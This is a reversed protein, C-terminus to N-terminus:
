AAGAEKHEPRVRPRGRRGTLELTAARRKALAEVQARSYLWGFPTEHRDLEGREVALYVAARSSRLLRAAETVRILGTLDVTM